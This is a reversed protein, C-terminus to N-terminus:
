TWAKPTMAPQRRRRASLSEVTGLASTGIRPNRDVSPNVTVDAPLRGFHCSWDRIQLIETPSGDGAGFIVLLGRYLVDPIDAGAM